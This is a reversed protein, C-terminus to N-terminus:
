SLNRIGTHVWRGKWVYKFPASYDFGSMDDFPKADNSIVTLRIVDYGKSGYGKTIRLNLDTDVPVNTDVPAEEADDANTAGADVHVLNEILTDCYKAMCTTPDFKEELEAIETYGFREM